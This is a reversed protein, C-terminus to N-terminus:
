HGFVDEDLIVFAGDFHSREGGSSSRLGVLTDWFVFVSLISCPVFRIFTLGGAVLGSEGCLIKRARSLRDEELGLASHVSRWLNLAFLGVCLLLIM